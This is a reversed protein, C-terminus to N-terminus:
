IAVCGGGQESRWLDNATQCVAQWGDLDPGAGAGEQDLAFHKVYGAYIGRNLRRVTGGAVGQPARTVCLLANDGFAALAAHMALVLADDIAHECRYVLIKEAARLDEILKERLFRLRRCTQEFMRDAPADSTRVFSHSEMLFRTDGTVYEEHGAAARAAKVITFAPDGVGEFSTTIAAIMEAPNTRAWRLLGVSTSGFRGQVMGFECGMGSGGLSEFHDFLNTIARHPHPATPEALQLRAIELKHALVNDDPLLACAEALRAVCANWDGQRSALRAYELLIGRDAPYAARADACVSAAEDAAGAGCLARILMAASAAGANQTHFQRAITLAQAFDGADEHMGAWAAALPLHQPFRACWEAALRAADATYPQERLSNIHAIYAPAHDPFRAHHAALRALVEPVRAARGRRQAM